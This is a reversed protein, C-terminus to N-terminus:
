GAITISGSWVSSGSVWRGCPLSSLVHEGALNQALNQYRQVCEGVTSGVVGYTRALNKQADATDAASVAWGGGLLLASAALAALRRTLMQRM